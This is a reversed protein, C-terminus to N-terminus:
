VSAFLNLPGTGSGLGPATELARHVWRKALPLAERLSEGRALRATIAASYACGTGHGATTTLRSGDLRLWEFGRRFVDVSSDEALHGGKVCVARLGAECLEEAAREADGVTEVPFGCLTAAEVANPMVLTARRMLAWLGGYRENPAVMLAKGRSAGLVPDVVLPVDPLEDALMQAMEASGLAGTKMAQPQLDSLVARLEMRVAEVDRLHVAQVGRTNQVTTLTLVGTGYVNHQHFTRQDALLGAGGSPDLGAVSLAIM